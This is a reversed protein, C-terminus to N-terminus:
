NLGKPFHLKLESIIEPPIWQISDDELPRVKKGPIFANLFFFEVYIDPNRMDYELPMRKYHNKFGELEFIRKGKPSVYESYKSMLLTAAVSARHQLMADMIPCTVTTHIVQMGERKDTWQALHLWTETSSIVQSIKENETDHNTRGNPRIIGQPLTLIHNM